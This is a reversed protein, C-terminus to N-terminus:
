GVLCHVFFSRLQQLIEVRLVIARVQLSSFIDKEVAPTATATLAVCPIKKLKQRLLGLRSYEPRFLLCFLM